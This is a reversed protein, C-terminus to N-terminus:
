EVVVIFVVEPVVVIFVVVDPIIVIVVVMLVEVVTFGVVVEVIVVVGVGFAVAQPRSLVRLGPATPSSTARAATTLSM